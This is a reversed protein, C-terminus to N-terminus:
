TGAQARFIRRIRRVDGRLMGVIRWVRSRRIAALEAQLEACQRDREDLMRQIFRKDRLLEAVAAQGMEAEARERQLQAHAAGEMQVLRSVLRDVRHERLCVAYLWRMPRNAGSLPDGAEEGLSRIWERLGGGAGSELPFAGHRVAPETRPPGAVPRCRDQDM